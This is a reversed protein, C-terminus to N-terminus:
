PLDPNVSSGTAEMSASAAAADTGMKRPLRQQSNKMQDGRTTDCEDRWRKSAGAGSVLGGSGKGARAWLEVHLLAEAKDRRIVARVRFDECVVRGHLSRAKAEQVLALLAAEIKLLSVAADTLKQQVQRNSTRLRRQQAAAVAAAAAAAAKNSILCDRANSFIDIAGVSLGTAGAESQRRRMKVYWDINEVVVGSAEM